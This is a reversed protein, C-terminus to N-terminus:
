GGLPLNMFSLNPPPFIAGHSLAGVDALKRGSDSWSSRVVGAKTLRASVCVQGCMGLTSWHLDQM